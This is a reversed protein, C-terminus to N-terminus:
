RIPCIGTECGENGVDLVEEKVEYKKLLSPMFPKMEKIRRNYEEETIAEYPM